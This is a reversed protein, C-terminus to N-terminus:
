ESARGWNMENADEAGAIHIEYPATAGPCVYVLPRGWADTLMGPGIYGATRFDNPDIDSPREILAHLGEEQTPYRGTDLKFQTVAEDLAKLHAETSIRRALEMTKRNQRRLNGGWLIVGLVAVVVVVWFVWKSVQKQSM